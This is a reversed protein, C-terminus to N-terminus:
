VNKHYQDVLRSVGEPAQGRKFHLEIVALESDSNTPTPSSETKHGNQDQSSQAPLGASKIEAKLTKSGEQHSLSVRFKLRMEDLQLSHHHVLSATPVERHAYTGDPKPLPVTVTKPKVQTSGDASKVSHFHNMFGTVSHQDVADLAQKISHGISTLIDDLDHLSM